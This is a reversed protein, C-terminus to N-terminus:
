GRSEMGTGFQHGCTSCRYGGTAVRASVAGCEPCGIPPAANKKRLGPGLTLFDESERLRKTELGKTKEDLYTTLGYCRKGTDHGIMEEWPQIAGLERGLEELNVNQDTIANRNVDVIFYRGIDLEVGESRATRLQKGDQRLKRNLRQYLARETIKIRTKELTPM